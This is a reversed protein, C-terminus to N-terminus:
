ARRRDLYQAVQFALAAVDINSAIPGYNNLVVGAGGAGAGWLGGLEAGPIGALAAGLGGANGQTGEPMPPNVDIPLGGNSTGGTPPTTNYGQTSPAPAAPAGWGFSKLIEAWGPFSPISPWKLDPIFDGWAPAKLSPWTLRPIFSL